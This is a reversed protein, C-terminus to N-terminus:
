KGSGHVYVLFFIFQWFVMIMGTGLFVIGQWFGEPSLIFYALIYVEFPLFVILFGIFKVLKKNM